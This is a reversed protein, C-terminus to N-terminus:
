KQEEKESTYPSKNGNKPSIFVKGQGDATMIFIDSIELGAKKAWNKVFKENYGMSELTVPLTKGDTM